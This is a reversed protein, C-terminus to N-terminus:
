STCEIRHSFRGKLRASEQALGFFYQTEAQRKPAQQVVDLPEDVWGSM